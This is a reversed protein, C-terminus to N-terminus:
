CKRLFNSNAIDAFQTLSLTEPRSAPDIGISKLKEALEDKPIDLVAERSISNAITKRRQNFSGRMIRFFKDEDYVKVSPKELFALKVICSDVDPSPYFSTRKVTYILTPITFYNVFCSISGYDSSGPKAILRRAVEKQMMIVASDLFRRSSILHEIIPTTIYYPLNGVVKAKGGRAPGAFDFKLIDGNVIELNPYDDGALDKLIACAKRDIDVAVMRRASGAIDFTLAGMGPGIEVVADKESVAAERVIKNKINGDILYNEGLRKLPTFGYDSFVRVLQTKTLM